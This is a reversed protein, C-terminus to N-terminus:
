NYNFNIPERFENHLSKNSEIGLGEPIFTDQNPRTQRGGLLGSVMNEEDQRDVGASNNRIHKDNIIEDPNFIPGDFSTIENQPTLKNSSVKSSRTKVKKQSQAKM